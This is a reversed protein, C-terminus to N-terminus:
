ASTEAKSIISSKPKYRGWFRYKSFSTYKVIFEFFKYKMLRHTIRYSFFLIPISLVSWFTFRITKNELWQWDEFAQISLLQNIAFGLVISTIIGVLIVFGHAIEIAKQPCENMCKMCSECKYTWFMRNNVKKIASVPCNKECLGCDDCASTSIFSKALFYQGILIYGISILAAISDQIIDYLARYVRKGAIIKNAFKRVKPEAHQYILFIGKKRVTPHLFLWNSPLDVPLLGIIKFGKLILRLSSWYHVLGSLGPTFIRGIRLGGRTNVIFAACNSVKPFNHIFNRMIEPFHFGHTPSCFGILSNEEPISIKIKDIKSIDFIEVAIQSNKFEDAIWFAVNKANGTGSFFYIVVKKFIM